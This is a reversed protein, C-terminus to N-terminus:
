AIPLLPRGWPMGMLILLLALAFFVLTNGFKGRDDDAKKALARGMHAVALAGFMMLPHELLFFRDSSLAVGIDNFNSFAAQSIPSLIVYLTLGILVQVDLSITFILGLRDDQNTWSSQSVWDMIARIVAAAGALLVLWRVINHLTLVFNFMVGGEFIPFRVAQRVKRAPLGRELNM